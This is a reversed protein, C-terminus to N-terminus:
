DRIKKLTNKISGDSYKSILVMEDDTLKEIQYIIRDKGRELILQDESGLKWSTKNTIKKVRLEATMNENFVYITNRAEEMEMKWLESGTKLNGEVKETKWIGTILNKKSKSVLFSSCSSFLFLIIIIIVSFTSKMYVGYNVLNISYKYLILVM